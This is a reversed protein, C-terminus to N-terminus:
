HFLSCIAFEDYDGNPRLNDPKDSDLHVLAYSEVLNFPHSTVDSPILTSGSQIQGPALQRCEVRDGRNKSIWVKWATTFRYIGSYRCPKGISKM